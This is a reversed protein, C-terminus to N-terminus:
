RVHLLYLFIEGHIQGKWRILSWLHSGNESTENRKKEYTQEHERQTATLLVFGNLWCGNLWGGVFRSTELVFRRKSFFTGLGTRGTVM